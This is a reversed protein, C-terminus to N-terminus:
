PAASRRSPVDRASTRWHAAALVLGASNFMFAAILLLQRIGTSFMLATFVIVGGFVGAILARMSPPTSNAAAWARTHLWVLAALGVAFGVSLMARLPNELTAQRPPGSVALAGTLVFSFIPLLFSQLFRRDLTKDM